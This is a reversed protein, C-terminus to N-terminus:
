GRNTVEAHIARASARDSILLFLKANIQNYVAAIQGFVKHVMNELYLGSTDEHHSIFSSSQYFTLRGGWWSYGLTSNGAAVLKTRMKAM